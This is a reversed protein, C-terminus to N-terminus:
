NTKFKKLDEMFIPYNTEPLDTIKTGGHKVVLSQVQERFGAKATAIAAARVTELSITPTKSSAEQKKVTPRNKLPTEEAVEDENEIAEVEELTEAVPPAQKEIKKVVAKTSAEKVTLTENSVLGKSLTAIIEQIKPDDIVGNLTITINM